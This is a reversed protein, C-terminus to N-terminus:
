EIGTPAAEVAAEGQTSTLMPRLRVWRASSSVPESLRSILLARNSSAFFGASMPLSLLFLGPLSDAALLVRREVFASRLPAGTGGAGTPDRYSDQRDARVRRKIQKLARGASSWYSATQQGTSQHSLAATEHQRIPRYTL